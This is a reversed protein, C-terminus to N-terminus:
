SSKQIGAVLGQSGLERLAVRSLKFDKYFSRTSGSVVCINSLQSPFILSDLFVIYLMRKYLYPVQTNKALLQFFQLDYEKKLFQKRFRAQYILFKKM